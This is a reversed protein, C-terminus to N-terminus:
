WRVTRKGNITGYCEEAKETRRYCNWARGAGCNTACWKCSMDANDCRDCKADEDDVTYTIYESM